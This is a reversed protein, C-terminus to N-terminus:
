YFGDIEIIINKKIIINCRDKCFSLTIMINNGDEKVIRLNSYLKIAENYTKGLILNKIKNLKVEKYNPETHIIDQNLIFINRNM